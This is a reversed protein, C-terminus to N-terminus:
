GEYEVLNEKREITFNGSEFDSVICFNESLYEEFYVPMGTRQNFMLM